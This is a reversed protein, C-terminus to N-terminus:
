AAAQEHRSMEECVENEIELFNVLMVGMDLGLDCVFGFCEAILAQQKTLGNSQHKANTKPAKTGVLPKRGSAPSVVPDTKVASTGAADCRASAAAIDRSIEAVKGTPHTM